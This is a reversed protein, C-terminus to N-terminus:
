FIEREVYTFDVLQSCIESQFVTNFTLDTGPPDTPLLRAARENGARGLGRPGDLLRREKRVPDRVKFAFAMHGHNADLEFGHLFQQKAPKPTLAEAYGNAPHDLLDIGPGNTM